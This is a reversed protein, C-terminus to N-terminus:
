RIRFPNTAALPDIRTGAVDAILREGPPIDAVRAVVHRKTAARSAM